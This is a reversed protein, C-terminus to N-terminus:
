GAGLPTTGALYELTTQARETRATLDALLRRLEPEAEPTDPVAALADALDAERAASDALISARPDSALAARARSLTTAILMREEPPANPIDDHALVFRGLVHADAEREEALAQLAECTPADGCWEGGSRHQAAAQRCAVLTDNLAVLLDSRLLTM